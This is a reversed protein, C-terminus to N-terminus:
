QLFKELLGPVMEPVHSGSDSSELVLNLEDVKIGPPLYTGSAASESPRSVIPTSNATSFLASQDFM